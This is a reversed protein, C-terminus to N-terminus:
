ILLRYERIRGLGCTNKGGDDGTGIWSARILGQKVLENLVKLRKKKVRDPINTRSVQILLPSASKLMLKLIEAAEKDQLHEAFALDAEWDRSWTIKLNKKRLYDLIFDSDTM